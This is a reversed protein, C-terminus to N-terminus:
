PWAGTSRRWRFTRPSGGTCGRPVRGCVGCWNPQRQRGASARTSNSRSKTARAWLVACRGLVRNRRMRAPVGSAHLLAAGEREMDGVIGDVRVWDIADLRQDVDPRFRVVVARGPIRADLRRGRRLPPDAGARSPDVRSCVRAGARAASPSCRCRAHTRGRDITHIRAANAMNENVIHHIRGRRRPCTSASRRRRNARRNGRAAAGVIWGCRAASSSSRTWIASCSIPTLSPRCRAGRGYCAPGPDAGASDPGVKLLGLTDVRAISGGGAGIEIMEISRCKSRFGRARKSGTFAIRSRAAVRADARGDEIICLKATTGGM